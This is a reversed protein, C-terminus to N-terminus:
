NSSGRSARTPFVVVTASAASSTTRSAAWCLNSSRWSPWTTRARPGHSFAAHEPPLRYSSTASGYDVVRGVTMGNLWDRVYREDLGAADAIHAATAPRMNAMSDFLGTRHGVSVMLTLMGENIMGAMRAAFAELEGEDL